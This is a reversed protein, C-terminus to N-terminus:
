FGLLTLVGSPAKAEQVLKFILTMPEALLYPATGEQNSLVEELHYQDGSGLKLDIIEIFYFYPSLDRPQWGIYDGVQLPTMLYQYLLRFFEVSVPLDGGAWTESILVDDRNDPYRTLANAGETRTLVTKMTRLADYDFGVTKTPNEPYVISDFYPHVLRRGGGLSPNSIRADVNRVSFGARTWPIRSGLFATFAGPEFGLVRNPKWM